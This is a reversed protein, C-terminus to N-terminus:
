KWVQFKWEVSAPKNNLMLTTSLCGLLFTVLNITIITKFKSVGLAAVLGPSRNLMLTQRVSMFYISGPPLSSECCKMKKTVYAHVWYALTNMVPLCKQGLTTYCELTNPVNMLESSFSTNDTSFFIIITFSSELTMLLHHKLNLRWKRAVRSIKNISRSDGLSFM